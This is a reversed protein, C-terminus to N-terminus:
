RKWMIKRSVDEFELVSFEVDITARIPCLDKDFLTYQTQASTVYGELYMPGICVVAIAPPRFQNISVMGGESFKPTSEGVLPAPYLFSRILEVADLVGRKRTRTNSYAGNNDWSVSPAKAKTDFYKRVSRIQSAIEDMVLSRRGTSSSETHISNALSDGRSMPRFTQTHSQPTDDLFLKFTLSRSGGGGWIYDQYPLGAYSRNEYSSEKNDSITEPNFQFQYGKNLDITGKLYDKNIIIGRNAVYADSHSVGALKKPQLLSLFESTGAKMVSSIPAAGLVGIM